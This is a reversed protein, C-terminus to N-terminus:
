KRNKKLSEILLIRTIVALAIFLTGYCLETKIISYDMKLALLLLAVLFVDIMNWKDLDISANGTKKAFSCNGAFMRFGLEVYKLFPFIITFILIILAVFYDKSEWFLAVSSLLNVKTSTIRINWVEYGTVMLPLYVGLIFFIVSSVYLITLLIKNSIFIGNNQLMTM